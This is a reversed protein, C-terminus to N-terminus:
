LYKRFYTQIFGYVEQQIINLEKVLNNRSM